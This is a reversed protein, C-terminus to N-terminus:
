FVCSDKKRQALTDVEGAAQDGVGKLFTMVADANMADLPSLSSRHVVRLFLRWSVGDSGIAGGRPGAMWAPTM